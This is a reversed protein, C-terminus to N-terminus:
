RLVQPQESADGVAWVDDGGAAKRPMCRVTRWSMSATATVGIPVVEAAVTRFEFGLVNALFEGEDGAVSDLAALPRFPAMGFWVKVLTWRSGLNVGVPGPGGVM